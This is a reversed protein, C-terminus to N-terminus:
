RLITVSGVTSLVTFATVPDIKNVPTAVPFKFLGTVANAAAMVLESCFWSGSRQWNRNVVFGLIATMDYPLGIQARAFAMFQAYQEDSLPIVIHAVNAWKDYAAPRIQVGPPVGLLHENRAGLLTGDELVIDVHDYKGGGKLEIVDDIFNDNGVFQLTITKM